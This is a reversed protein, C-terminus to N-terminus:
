LNEIRDVIAIVMAESHQPTVFDAAYLDCASYIQEDTPNGGTWDGNEVRAEIERRVDAEEVLAGYHLGLHKALDNLLQVKDWLGLAKAQELIQKADM